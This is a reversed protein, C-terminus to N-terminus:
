SEQEELEIVFNGSADVLGEAYPQVVITTEPFEVV